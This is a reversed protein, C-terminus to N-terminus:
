RARLDAAVRELVIGWDEGERQRYLRVSAYWPTDPRYRMWRWDLGHFPLLIWCPVGMAGAMHAWSTDVTVLLDLGALQSLSDLTDGVPSLLRGEPAIAQLSGRPLSRHADNVHLPNGQEVLGVGAPGGAEVALYPAGSINEPTAGLLYPLSGSLVWWDLDGPLGVRERSHNIVQECGLQHLARMNVRQCALLIRSPRLTRLQHIFRSLQLEDGIGEETWVLISQGALPQGRWEPYPLSRLRGGIKTRTLRHEYLPWAEAWRGQMLLARALLEKLQGNDPSLATAERGLAEAEEARQLVLAQKMREFLAANLLKDAM